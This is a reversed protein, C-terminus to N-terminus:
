SVTTFAGTLMSGLATVFLFVAQAMSRYAPPTQSYCLEYIPVNCLCEGFGVLFYPIAMWWVSFSSMQVGQAACQSYCDEHKYYFGDDDHLSTPSPTPIDTNYHHHHICPGVLPSERRMVEFYAAFCIAAISVVMGTMYKETAKLKRGLCSYFFPYIIGDLIPVMIIIALCDAANLM